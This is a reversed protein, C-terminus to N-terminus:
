VVVRFLVMVRDDEVVQPSVVGVEDGWGETAVGTADVYDSVIHRFVNGEREAPEAEDVAELKHRGRKLLQHGVQQAVGEDVQVTVGDVTVQQFPLSDEWIVM